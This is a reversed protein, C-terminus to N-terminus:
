KLTFVTDNSVRAFRIKQIRSLPAEGWIRGLEQYESYDENLAAETKQQDMADETTM